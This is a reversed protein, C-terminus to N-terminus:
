KTTFTFVGDWRDPPPQERFVAIRERYVEYLYRGPEQAQLHSFLEDADDWAQQRYKGLAQHYTQLHAKTAEDVDPHLPEFISVPLDKGKVRVRDLERFLLEPVAARTFETVILSVGYQKTLGEVRSGLNVADGMVTYAMRFESGMNGVSMTGTNIGIGMRIPPRGISRYYDASEEVSRLMALAALIANRAHYPDELPAGWFAMIADGMYKDITGRHGHIIRTLPTLLRNMLATLEAPKLGESLTTFGRVDSFLVTMERSEGQLGYSAPDENMEDVLEPPVYQGFLRTLQRKGRSEVFFGYSMHFLYLVAILALPLALQIVIRKEEWSWLNLGVLAAVLVSTLFTGVLPSFRPVLFTMYLGILLLQFFEIGHVFYPRSRINQDLMGAIVNAHMEVGAFVSQVPTSRTDTLGAASTGLLAINNELVTKDAQGNLVDTASVYPFSGQPGRFPILAAAESDVPVLLGDIDLFELGVQRKSDYGKGIIPKVEPFGLLTRFVGLALSQYVNGDVNAILPVRRYVGDADVVPNSFFGGTEAAEQLISLNAGYGPQMILELDLAKAQEGTMLPPPLLGVRTDESGPLNAFFGLVVPRGKLTEAFERDYALAPRVRELVTQYEADDKLPGAALRELSQLGSSADPEAFVVDFGLVQVEYDDFLRTVLRGVKDRSWPWQGEAKLSKEDLDIIVIRPDTGGPLTFLLRQDYALNELVTLLRSSAWNTLFLMAMAMFGLSILNRLFRRSM